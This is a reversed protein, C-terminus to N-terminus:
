AQRARAEATLPPVRGDPPDVVLSTLKRGNLMAVGTGRDFWFDAVGRASDVAAGGDRRDRNNRSLTDAVYAAAEADTFADKAALEQPREFPTLTAFSWVGELDRSATRASHPTAEPAAQQTAESASHQAAEGGVQEDVGFALLVNGARGGLSGYGSNVYLMGGAVVPGPGSMSAGNAKVGNVTRFERNTDFQWLLSGDQTSYGRIAGDNSGVFVVGPMVTIAALIAANCGRAPAGCAPPPPPAYWAREGTALKVAHLGGPQPSNGDAVAFYAREGGVAS